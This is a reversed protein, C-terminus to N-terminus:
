LMEQSNSFRVALYPPPFPFLFVSENKDVEPVLKAVPAWFADEGDTALLQVFRTVEELNSEGARIRCVM